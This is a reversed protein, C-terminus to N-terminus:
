RGGGALVALVAGKYTAGLPIVSDGIRIESSDFEDIKRRNVMYSRNVRLFEKDALSEELSKFTMRTTVRRDTLHMVLYDGLGEIYLIESLPLRVFKRDAKVTLFEEEESRRGARALARDVARDFRERSIPKLLYDVTDVDYSELAYEAFATTFVVMCNGEIRRALDIGSEGEMDIDLFVLLPEEGCKEILREAEVTNSAAGAEELEPRLGVLRRMGRRAIPEDDVIICKIREM